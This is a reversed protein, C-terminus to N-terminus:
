SSQTTHTFPQKVAWSNLIHVIGSTNTIDPIDFQLSSYLGIGLGDQAPIKICLGRRRSCLLNLYVRWMGDKDPLAYYAHANHEIGFSVYCQSRAIPLIYIVESVLLLNRDPLTFYLVSETSVAASNSWQNYGYISHLYGFLIDSFTIYSNTYHKSHLILVSYRRRLINNANM